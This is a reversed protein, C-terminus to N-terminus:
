PCQSAGSVLEPPTHPPEDGVIELLDGIGCGLVICIRELADLDVRSARQATLASVTSRNVNALRALEATRLQREQMLRNLHSRVM